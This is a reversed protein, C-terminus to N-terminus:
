EELKYRVGLYFERGRTPGWVNSTDFYPSFPDQWSRIPRLQRFDFLNEVGAYLEVAGLVKTFQLNVVTFPNSSDPEQFAPPNGSTNALRQEGMWHMNMDVHFGKSLPEYSFSVHTRHRANFPLQVREEEIVRHVDLYNYALKLGVRQFFALGLEAQFGNSVSTGTFNSIFAKTPDLDYDPFIQNQFVTRYLDVSWQAELEEGPQVLTFNLGYNFAEEPDLDNDIIVDRSSALLNVNESFLNITRWGRGASARVTATPSLNVRLLARPTWFSGFHQHHDLRLGTILTVQDDMWRFTNEAFVGPIYEEKRYAGAYTRNLGDEAYFSIDEQLDQVRFSVGAKLEHAQAWNREYQANFYGNAHRADYYLSGYQSEQDHYFGSALLVIHHTDDFRYGAKAYLDPQAFRVWQGYAATPAIDISPDFNTQGGLRQENVFRFGIQAHWGWEAADRYQWKNWFSYRTLLPLDLFDDGDRDVRSAPQTIHAAWLSSWKDGQRRWNANYQSEGFSNVYANLLLRESKNPKKLLVNIQGSISEFGQLVSNAGKAVYIKDILTGPITSVGYTYSSGQILPFGDVLIQNYVGSLGLIRLEKANTVVNTTNPKVSAQTNFCGALDCCASRGLEKQTIVETKVPNITSVFTGQERETVVVEQLATLEALQINVVTGVTVALTDAQYGVYAVVLGTVTEPAEPLEFYGDADTTTGTTSGLWFVSAGVLQEGDAGRVVGTTNQAIGLQGLLVCLAAILGYAYSNMRDM